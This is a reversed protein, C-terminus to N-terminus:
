EMVAALIGMRELAALSTLLADAAEASLGHRERLAGMADGLPLDGTLGGVFEALQPSHLFYLARSHHNYALGGFRERRIAVGDALRYRDTLNM